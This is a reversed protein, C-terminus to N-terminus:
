VSARVKAKEGIEFSQSKIRGGRIVLWLAFGLEGLTMPIVLVDELSKLSDVMVPALAYAAHLFSYSLGAIMLLIGWFRPVFVSRFALFGLVMLHMGFIILANSWTVEFSQIYDMVLRSGADLDLSYLQTNIVGLVQSLNFIAFGLMATYIVRLFSSLFALRPGAPKLFHYLAWAVLADLLFILIWGAIEAKFLGTSAQLNQLTGQADEALVLKGHVYGFSFGAVLGMLLLSIGATLASARQSIQNSTKM